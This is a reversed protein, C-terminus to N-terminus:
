ETQLLAPSDTLIGLARLSGLLGNALEMVDKAAAEAASLDGSAVQQDVSLRLERYHALGESLDAYNTSTTALKEVGIAAEGALADAEALRGKLSLMREEETPAAPVLDEISVNNRVDLNTMFSIVKRTNSLAEALMLSAAAEDQERTRAATNVKSNIDYLRREIDSRGQPSVASGLGNLYEYARTTEAEVRSMLKQYSLDDNRLTVSARAESVATALTSASAPVAGQKVLVEASVDLASALAIEAMTAEDRDSVRISNISAQAAASHQRIARAVDAEAAPTLRGADSLLQAEAVRKELRETEWEIKQYPSSVLAGRLEENFRVKVPYLVDGPLAREAMAPVAVFFLMATVGAARSWFWGSAIVGRPGARRVLRRESLRQGEQLPHYEMYALLRDRLEEREGVRLRIEGAKTKLQETFKNM